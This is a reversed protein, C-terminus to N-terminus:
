ESQRRLSDGGGPKSKKDIPRKAQELKNFLEIAGYVTGDDLIPVCALNRPSFGLWASCQPDFRPDSQPECLALSLGERVCFAQVGRSLPLRLTAEPLAVSGAAALVLLESRRLGLVSLCGAECGVGTLCRQLVRQALDSLSLEDREWGSDEWLQGPSSEEAALLTRQRRLVELAEASDDLEQLCIREGTTPHIVWVRDSSQSACSLPSGPPWSLVRMLERLASSWDAAEFDRGFAEGDIRFRM